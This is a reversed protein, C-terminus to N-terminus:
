KPGSSRVKVADVWEKREAESISRWERRVSPNECGGAGAYATTIFVLLLALFANKVLGVAM